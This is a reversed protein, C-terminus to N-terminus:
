LTRRGYEAILLADVIGDHANKCQETRRFDIKPFLQKAAMLSMAKTDVEGKMTQGKRKGKKIKIPTKRIQNLGSYIVKQWTKPPAMTYSLGAAVTLGELLYSVGGFTFTAAASSGYIAHVKEIIVRVGRFKENQRKLVTFIQWLAQIDIQDKILPITKKYIVRGKSSLAVIAGNKGPDMGVYIM